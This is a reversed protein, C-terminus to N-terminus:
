RFYGNFAGAAERLWFAVVTLTIGTTFQTATADNTIKLTVQNFRSLDLGYTLDHFWRGFHIPIWQRHPTNSYTRWMSVPERFDDYFACALAQQGDYSKIVESGDGVVEIKSIYDILRWKPISTQFASANETSRIYLTVDSLRGQKPLDLEYTAAFPMVVGTRLVERQRFM